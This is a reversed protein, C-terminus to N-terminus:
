ARAPSARQDLPRVAQDAARVVEVGVAALVLQPAAAVISHALPIPVGRSSSSDSRAFEDPRTPLRSIICGNPVTTPSNSSSRSEICPGHPWCM